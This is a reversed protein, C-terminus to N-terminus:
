EENAENLERIRKSLKTYGNKIAKDYDIIVLASKEMLRQMEESANAYYEAIKSYNFAFHRYTAKILFRREEMSVKSFIIDALLEYAKTEDILESIQPQKGTPEYYLGDTRQTYKESMIM